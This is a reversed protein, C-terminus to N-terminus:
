VKTSKKRHHLSEGLDEVKKWSRSTRRTSPNRRSAQKLKVAASIKGFIKPYKKSNFVDKAFSKRSHHGWFTNCDKQFFAFLPKWFANRDKQFFTFFHFIDEFANRDKHFFTLFYFVGQFFTFFQFTDEFFTVTRRSFLSFHRRCTNRDKSFFHLFHVVDQFPTVTM